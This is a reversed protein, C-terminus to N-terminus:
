QDETLVACSRNRSSYPASKAAVKDTLCRRVLYRLWTTLEIPYVQESVEDTDGATISWLPEECHSACFLELLM